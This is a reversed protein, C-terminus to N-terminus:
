KLILKKGENRRTIQSTLPLLLGSALVIAGLGSIVMARNDGTKVLGGPTKNEPTPEEPTPEEPTPEEPIPVEPTPEVPKDYYANPDKEEKPTNIGYNVNINGNGVFVKEGTTEDVTMTGIVTEIIKVTGDENIILNGNEDKAYSSYVINGYGDAFVHNEGIKQDAIGNYSNIFKEQNPNGLSEANWVVQKGDETTFVVYTSDAPMVVKTENENESVNKGPIITEVDLYNPEETKTEDSTQNNTTEIKEESTESVTKEETIEVESTESVTKELTKEELVVVDEKLEINASKIEGNYEGQSALEKQEANWEEATKIETQTESTFTVTNTEDVVNVETPVEIPTNSSVEVDNAEADMEIPTENNEPQSETEKAFAVGGPMALSAVLAFTATKAGISRTVKRGKSITNDIFNARILMKELKFIGKQFLSNLKRKRKITM